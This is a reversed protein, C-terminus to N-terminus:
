AGYSLCSEARRCKLRLYACCSEFSCVVKSARLFPLFISHRRFYTNRDVIISDIAIIYDLVFRLLMCSFLSLFFLSIRKKM